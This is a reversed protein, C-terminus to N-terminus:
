HLLNKDPIVGTLGYVATDHNKNLSKDNKMDKICERVCNIFDKWSEQSADTIAIHAAAPRQLKAIVWKKKSMQEGLAISNVTDSTWSFIPSCHTSCVIVDPDNKFALKMQKQAELIKHAKEKLGKRGFKLMSAWTGAIVNGPRSGAITTTAYIGGNWDTSVYFQYERLRKNRFMAISCGKPGYAYKHPDCSISTVGPVQFDFKYPLKYGL